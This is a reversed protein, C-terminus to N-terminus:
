ETLSDDEESEDVDAPLDGDEDEQVNSSTEDDFLADLSITEEEFEGTESMGMSALSESDPARNEAGLIAGIEGFGVDLGGAEKALLDLTELTEPAEAALEGEVMIPKVAGDAIEELAITIPHTSHTNVVLPAGGKVQKARKAALNVLIYRSPFEDLKDGEPYLAM